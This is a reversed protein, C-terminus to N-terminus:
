ELVIVGAIHKGYLGCVEMERRVDAYTTKGKRVTLVIKREGAQELSSSDDQMWQGYEVKRCGKKVDQMLRACEEDQVDGVMYLSGDMLDLASVLYEESSFGGSRKAAIGDQWRDIVSQRRDQAECRGILQLGYYKELEKAYKVRQDSLYRVLFFLLGLIAAGFAGILAKPLIDATSQEAAAAASTAAGVVDEHLYVLRYYESEQATLAAEYSTYTNLYDNLANVCGKQRDSVSTDVSCRVIDKVNQFEYSSYEDSHEKSRDSLTDRLVEMLGECSEQDFGYVNFNLLKGSHREMERGPLGEINVDVSTGDVTSVWASLLEQVYNRGYGGGLAEGMKELVESDNVLAILESALRETGEGASIYYKLEGVYASTFDMKMFISNDSYVLQSEYLKRYRYANEMNRQASPSIPYGRIAEETLVPAQERKQLISAGSGLLAGALAFALFAKWRRMLYFALDTINLEMERNEAM